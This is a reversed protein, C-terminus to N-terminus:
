GTNTWFFETSATKKAIITKKVYLAAAALGIPRPADSLLGWEIM